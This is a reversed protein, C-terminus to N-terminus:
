IEGRDTVVEDSNGTVDEPFFHAETGDHYVYDTNHAIDNVGIWYELFISFHFFM